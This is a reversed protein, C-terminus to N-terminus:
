LGIPTHDGRHGLVPRANSPSPQSPRNASGQERRPAPLVLQFRVRFGLRGRYSPAAAVRRRTRLWGPRGGGPRMVCLTRPLRAHPPWCHLAAAGRRAVPTSTVGPVAPLAAHPAGSAASSLVCVRTRLLENALHAPHRARADARARRRAAHPLPPPALCVGVGCGGALRLGRWWGTGGCGKGGLPKGGLPLAEEGVVLVLLPLATPGVHRQLLKRGPPGGSCGGGCWCARWRRRWPLLRQGTPLHLRRRQVRLQVRQQLYLFRTGAM